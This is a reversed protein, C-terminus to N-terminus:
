PSARDDGSEGQEVNTRSQDAAVFLQHYFLFSIGLPLLYYSFRYLLIGLLAKDYDLGMLYFSGVMSGEMIGIGAPTVSILSAFIAVSFGVLLTPVPVPYHVARFSCVLCSFMCVWDLVAFGAPGLLMRRNKMLFTMSDDFNAFFAEAKEESLWTIRKFRGTIWRVVIMILRWVRARFTGSVIIMVTFWTLLFSFLLILVAMEIEGSDLRHDGYLFFFGLYILVIAVTNTLFGHIMSVSLTKSPAIRERALLYVKAAIGSLGALAMLYNLTCSVTSIRFVTSFRLSQGIGRLLLHLVAAIFLYSATTFLLALIAWAPDIHYLNNSLRAIDARELVYTFLLIGLLAAIWFRKRKFRVHLHSM